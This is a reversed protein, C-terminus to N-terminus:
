DRVRLSNQANHFKVPLYICRCMVIYTHFNTSNICISENSKKKTRILVTSIRANLELLVPQMFGNTLLALMHLLQQITTVFYTYVGYECKILLFDAFIRARTGNWPVKYCFAESGDIVFKVGAKRSPNHLHSFIHSPFYLSTSIESRQRRNESPVTINGVSQTTSNFM